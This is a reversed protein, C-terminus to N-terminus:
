LKEMKFLKFIFGLVISSLILIITSIHINITNLFLILLLYISFVIITIIKTNSSTYENKILNFATKIIIICVGIRIGFFADSIFKISLFDNLFLSIIYIIIISPLIVGITSLISGKIGGKKYGIYTAMNIAIPGPTSEAIAILNVFEENDIWKKNSVCIDEVLSIMAYGGGFTFLGIKFFTFFLEILM